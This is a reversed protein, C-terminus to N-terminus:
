KLLWTGDRMLDRGAFENVERWAQILLPGVRFFIFGPSKRPDFGAKIAFQDGLERTLEEPPLASATGEILVVDRTTGLAVRVRPNVRLNKATPNSELTAMLLFYGDWLFSLPVLYPQDGATAVWADVDHELRYLSDIRRQRNDRAPPATM